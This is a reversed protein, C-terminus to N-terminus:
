AGEALARIADGLASLDAEDLLATLDCIVIVGDVLKVLGAVLPDVTEVAPPPAEIAEISRIELIRDARVALPGLVGDCLLLQDSARLARRAVGIRQSLDVLPVITGRVDIVGDIGAPAGPLPSPAVARLLERVCTSALGLHREGIAFVVIEGGALMSPVHLIAPVQAVAIGRFYGCFRARATRVTRYREDLPDPTV